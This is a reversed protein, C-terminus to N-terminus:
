NAKNFRRILTWLDENSIGGILPNPIDSSSGNWGLDRVETQSPGIQADGKEEHDANALKHSNTPLTNSVVQETELKDSNPTDVVESRNLLVPCPNPDSSATAM